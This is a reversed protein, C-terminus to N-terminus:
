QYDPDTSKPRVERHAIVHRSARENASVVLVPLLKGGLLGETLDALTGLCQREYGRQTRTRANYETLHFSGLAQQENTHCTIVRVRPLRMPMRWPFSLCRGPFATRVFTRQSDRRRPLRPAPLWYHFPERIACDPQNNFHDNIWTSMGINTVCYVM